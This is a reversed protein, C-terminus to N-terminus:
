SVKREVCLWAVPQATRRGGQVAISRVFAELCAVAGLLSPVNGPELYETPVNVQLSQNTCLNTSCDTGIYLQKRLNNIIRCYIIISCSQILRKFGLSGYITRVAGSVELRQM